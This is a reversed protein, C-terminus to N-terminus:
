WNGNLVSKEMLELVQKYAEAITSSYEDENYESEKLVGNNKDLHLVIAKIGKNKYRKFRIEVKHIEEIYDVM